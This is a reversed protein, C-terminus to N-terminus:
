IYYKQRHMKNSATYQGGPLRAAWNHHSIHLPFLHARNIRGWNSRVKSDYRVGNGRWSKLTEYLIKPHVRIAFLSSPRTENEISFLISQVHTQKRHIVIISPQMWISHGPGSFPWYESQLPDSFTLFPWHLKCIFLAPLITSFLFSAFCLIVYIAFSPSSCPM